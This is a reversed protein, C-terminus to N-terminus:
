DAPWALARRLVLADEGDQYYASRRGVREFGEAAYLALAAENGPRVELFCEVAGRGAAVGLGARLLRRGLGRRRAAPDVAVQLVQAEPGAVSLLTCGALTEGAPAVLGLGSRSRLTAAVLAASWPSPLSRTFLEAIADADTLGAARLSLEEFTAPESM